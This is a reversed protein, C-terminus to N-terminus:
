SGSARVLQALPGSEGYFATFILWIIMDYGKEETLRGKKRMEFLKPWGFFLYIQLAVARNDM